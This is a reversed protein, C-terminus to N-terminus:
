VIKLVCAYTICENPKFENVMSRETCYIRYFRVAVLVDGCLQLAVVWGTESAASLGYPDPNMELKLEGSGGGKHEETLVALGDEDILSKRSLPNVVDRGSRKRSM